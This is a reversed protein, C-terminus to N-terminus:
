CRARPLRRTFRFRGAVTISTRPIASRLPLELLRDGFNDQQVLDLRPDDNIRLVLRDDWALRIRARLDEAAELVCRASATERSSVARGVAPAVQQGARSRPSHYGRVTLWPDLEISDVGCFLSLGHL